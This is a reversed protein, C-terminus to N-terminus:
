LWRRERILAWADVRKGPQAHRGTGGGTKRRLSRTAAAGTSNILYPGEPDLISSGPNRVGRPQCWKESVALARVVVSWFRDERCCPDNDIRLASMALNGQVASTGIQQRSLVPGTFTM